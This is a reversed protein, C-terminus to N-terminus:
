RLTQMLWILNKGAFLKAIWFMPYILIATLIQTGAFSDLLIALFLVMLGYRGIRQYKVSMEYPLLNEMIHSGDLPPIPILNFLALGINMFLLYLLVLQYLQSPFLFYRILLGAVLAAFFNAGPGAAAMLMTDRRINKFYRPDVPVPRAWGFNFLFLMIAGLPDLHHFPNLTLRGAMKATPDGLEYAVRGHAYEHITICFLLVPIRVIWDAINFHM